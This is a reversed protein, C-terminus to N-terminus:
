RGARGARGARGGREVFGFDTTVIATNPLSAREPSGYAVGIGIERFRGTLINDRHGKSGMWADTIAAPTGRWNEGWAINEGVMWRQANKLYGTSRVRSAPTSGDPDEHDFFSRERMDTSFRLAVGGLQSNARLPKLDREDRERNLLCLIAASYTQPTHANATARAGACRDPSKAAAPAPM